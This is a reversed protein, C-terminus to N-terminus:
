RLTNRCTPRYNDVVGIATTRHLGLQPLLDHKLARRLPLHCHRVLITLRHSLFVSRPFNVKAAEEEDASTWNDDDEDSASEDGSDGEVLITRGSPHHANTTKDKSKAVPPPPPPPPPLPLAVPKDRAPPRSSSRTSSTESPPKAVMPTFAGRLHNQARMAARQKALDQLNTSSQILGPDRGKPRATTNSTLAKPPSLARTLGFFAHALDPHSGSSQLLAPQADLHQEEPFDFVAMDQVDLQSTSAARRLEGTQEVKARAMRDRERELQELRAKYEREQVVARREEEVREQKQKEELHFQYQILRENSPNARRLPAALQAQRELERDEADLRERNKTSAGRTPRAPPPAM